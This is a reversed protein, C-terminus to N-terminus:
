LPRALPSSSFFQFCFLSPSALCWGSVPQGTRAGIPEGSEKTARVKWLPRVGSNLRAALPKPKFSNNSTAKSGPRLWVACKEGARLLQLHKKARPALEPSSQARYLWDQAELCKPREGTISLSTALDIMQGADGHEASVRQCYVAQAFDPQYLSYFQILLFAAQNDGSTARNALVSIQEETLAYQNGPTAAKAAMFFLVLGVFLIPPKLKM